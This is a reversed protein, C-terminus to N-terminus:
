SAPIGAVLVRRPRADAREFVEFRRFRLERLAVVARRFTAAASGEINARPRSAAPRCSAPCRASTSATPRNTTPAIKARPSHVSRAPGTPLPSASPAPAAMPRARTATGTAHKAKPTSRSQGRRAGAASGSASVTSTSSAGASRGVTRMAM